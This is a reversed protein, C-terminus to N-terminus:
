LFSTPSTLILYIIFAMSHTSSKFLLYIMNEFSLSSQIIISCILVSSPHIMVVSIFIQYIIVITITIIFIDIGCLYRGYCHNLGQDHEVKTSLCLQHIHEIFLRERSLISSFCKSLSLEMTIAKRDMSYM